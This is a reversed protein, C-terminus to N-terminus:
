SKVLSLFGTFWVRCFWLGWFIWPTVGHLCVATRMKNGPTQSPDHLHHPLDPIIALCLPHPQIRMRVVRSLLALARFRGTM